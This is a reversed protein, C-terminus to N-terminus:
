IMDKVEVVFEMNKRDMGVFSDLNGEEFFKDLIGEVIGLEIDLKDKLEEVVVM